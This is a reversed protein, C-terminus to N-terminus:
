DGCKVKNTKAFRGFLKKANRDYECAAEKATDFTGLYQTRGSKHVYARFKRGHKVVGKFGSKNTSLRSVNAGNQSTSAPRLNGLRNDLRDGNKHDVVAEDTPVLLRHLYLRQAESGSGLTTAVYGKHVHWTMAKAWKATEADVRACVGKKNRVPLCVRKM